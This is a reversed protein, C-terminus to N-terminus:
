ITQSCRNTFLLFNEIAKYQKFHILYQHPGIRFKVKRLTVCMIRQNIGNHNLWRFGKWIRSWLILSAYETMRGNGVMVNCMSVNHNCCQTGYKSVLKQYKKSWTFNTVNFDLSLYEYTRWKSIMVASPM